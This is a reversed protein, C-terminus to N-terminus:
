KTAKWYRQLERKLDKKHKRMTPKLIAYKGAMAKELYIGYKVTHALYIVIENNELEAYGKLGQRANGTRDSWRANRKAFSEMEQASSNALAYLGAERRDLYDELNNIVGGITERAM